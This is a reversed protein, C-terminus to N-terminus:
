SAVEEPYQDGTGDFGPRAVRSFMELKPGLSRANVIEYFRDPKRSHVRKGNEGRPVPAIMVSPINMAETRVAFGKGRTGFLVLEHAGRFYQGLGITLALDGALDIRGESKVWVMHTKYDFGLTDMLWLSDVLSTMTSWMWNHCNDAPRWYPSRIITELIAYRDMTKYHDDAGRGCGGPENWPCDMVIASYPDGFPASM